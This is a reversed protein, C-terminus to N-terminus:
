LQSFIFVESHQCRLVIVFLCCLYLYFHEWVLFMFVIWMLRVVFPFHNVIYAKTPKLGAAVFFLLGFCFPMKCNTEVRWAFSFFVCMEFWRCVRICLVFILSCFILHKCISFFFFLLKALMRHTHLFRIDNKAWFKHAFIDLNMPKENQKYRFASYVHAPSRPERTCMQKPRNKTYALRFLHRWHFGGTDLEPHACFYWFKKKDTKYKYRHQLM